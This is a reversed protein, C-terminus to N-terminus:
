EGEKRYLLDIFLKDICDFVKKLSINKADEETLEERVLEFITHKLHQYPDNDWKM